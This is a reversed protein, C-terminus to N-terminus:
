KNLNKIQDIHKCRGRFGYGKCTCSYVGRKVSVYYEQDGKSSLVPFVNNPIIKVEVYHPPVYETWKARVEALTVDDAVPIWGPIVVRGNITRSIGPPYFSTTEPIYKEM